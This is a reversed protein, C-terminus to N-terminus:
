PTSGTRDPGIIVVRCPRLAISVDYTVDPLSLTTRLPELWRPAIKVITGYVDVHVQMGKNVTAETIEEKLVIFAYKGVADMARQSIRGQTMPLVRVDVRKGKLKPVCLWQGGDRGIVPPPPAAHTREEASVEWEAEAVPSQPPTGVWRVEEEDDGWGWRMIGAWPTVYKATKLPLGTRRFTLPHPIM